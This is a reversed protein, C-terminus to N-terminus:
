AFLAFPRDVYTYKSYMRSGDPLTLSKILPASTGGTGAGIELIRLTPNEHGLAAAFGTYDTFKDIANYFKTLGDDPLLVELPESKGELIDDYNDFVRKILVAAPSMSRQLSDTNLKDIAALREASSMKTWAQTETFISQKGKVAMQTQLHLWDNFKNLYSLSEIPEKSRSALEIICMTCLKEVETLTDQREPDETPPILEEVNLFDVDPRFVLEATGPWDPEDDNDLPSVRLGKLSLVVNGDGSVAFASGPVDRSSRGQMTAQIRVGEPSEGPGVYLEEIETPVCLSTLLRNIGESMAVICLQLCCDITSPHLVYEKKLEPDELVTAAATKKGPATSIDRLGQFIPGYNLGKSSM